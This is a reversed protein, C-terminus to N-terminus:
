CSSRPRVLTAFEETAPGSGALLLSPLSVCFRDLLCRDLCLDLNNGEGCAFFRACGNGRRVHWVSKSIFLSILGVAKWARERNDNKLAQGGAAEQGIGSGLSM